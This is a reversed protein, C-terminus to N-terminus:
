LSPHVFIPVKGYCFKKLKKTDANDWKTYAVIERDQGIERILNRPLNMFNVPTDLRLRVRPISVTLARTKPPKLSSPEHLKSSGEQEVWVWGNKNIKRRRQPLYHPSQFLGLGPDKSYRIWSCALGTLAGRLLYNM